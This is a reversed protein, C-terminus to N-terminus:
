TPTHTHAICNSERKRPRAELKGSIERALVAGLISSVFISTLPSMAGGGISLLDFGKALHTFDSNTKVLLIFALHVERSAAARGTSGGEDSCTRERALGSWDFLFFACDSQGPAILFSM